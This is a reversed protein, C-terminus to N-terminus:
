TRSEMKRIEDVLRKAETSWAQEWQRAEAAAAEIPKARREDGITRLRAATEEASRACCGYHETLVRASWAEHHLSPETM